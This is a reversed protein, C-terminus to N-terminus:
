SDSKVKSGGNDNAKPTVFRYGVGHVTFLWRSNSPSDGLKSRLNKMHSDVTREYGEHNYGFVKRVLEMRQYVRGPFRALTLLLNFESLTLNIDEGDVIVRRAPVDIVLGDFTLVDRQPEATSRSRRILARTRAVLERPSFPRSLCDDAGLELCEVRGDVSDDVTIAIIPVNSRDRIQKIVEQGSIDQLALDIIVLHFRGTDFAELGARGDKSTQLFYGESHLHAELSDRVTSEDEILLINQM